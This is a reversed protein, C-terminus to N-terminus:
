EGKITTSLINNLQALFTTAGAKIANLAAANQAANGPTVQSVITLYTQLATRFTDGKIFSETGSNLKIQAENVEISQANTSITIKLNDLSITKGTEQEINITWGPSGTVSFTQTLFDQIIKVLGKRDEHVTDIQQEFNYSTPPMNQFNNAVGIVYADNHKGNIFGIRVIDGIQLSTQSNKDSYSCIAGKDPTDMGLADITCLVKSNQVNVVRGNYTRHYKNDDINEKRIDSLFDTNNM